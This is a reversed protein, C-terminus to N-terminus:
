DLEGLSEEFEELRDQLPRLDKEIYLQSHVKLLLNAGSLLSRYVKETIEGCEMRYILDAVYTRVSSTNKFYRRKPKQKKKEEPKKVPIKVM